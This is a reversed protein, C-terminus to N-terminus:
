PEPRARAVLLPLIRELAVGRSAKLVVLEDGALREAVLPGAAEADPALLLGEGLRSAFPALAPVFAGIGVLLDPGQAVLAAAVETHASAELDGLERMTGAVFVLRRGARLAGALAIAAHFSAPNANYCDNLIALRGHRLLEVRGGPLTLTGLAVGVRALDLGLERAVAWVLLANAAQHLGPAGVVFEVGDVALRAQGDPDLRAQRPVLDAGALGATRVVAARERAGRALAPPETGVVALPVGDTLSLKEALVAELSGFGEVHGAAVNTVVAIDPRLIERFWGIEGPLSAGAEIVLAEAEDPASLVTLPVGVLNNQNAPTAHVRWRTALAARLMEKTSTKGNTGTIAIVPGPVGRRRVLALRGLARVTDEVWYLHLGEVPPTGRRVVAGRAGRDRAAVLHDHGDLREGAIAVFLAGAALTRTDTSVGSFADPGPGPGAVPGLADVVAGHTWRM